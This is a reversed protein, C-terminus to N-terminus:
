PNSCLSQIPLGVAAKLAPAEPSGPSVTQACNSRCRKRNKDTNFARCSAVVAHVPHNKAVIKARNSDYLLEIMVKNGACGDAIAEDLCLLLQKRLRVALIGGIM